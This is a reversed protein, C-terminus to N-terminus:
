YSDIVSDLVYYVQESVFMTFGAGTRAIKLPIKWMASSMPSSGVLAKRGTVLYCGTQKGNAYRGYQLGNTKLM